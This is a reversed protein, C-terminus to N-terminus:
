SMEKAKMDKKLETIESLFAEFKAPWADVNCQAEHLERMARGVLKLWIVSALAIFVLFLATLVPDDTGRLM